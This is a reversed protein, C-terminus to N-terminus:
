AADSVKEGSPAQSLHKRDRVQSYTEAHVDHSRDDHVSWHLEARADFSAANNLIVAV